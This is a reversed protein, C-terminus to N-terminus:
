QHIIILLADETADFTLQDFRLLDGDGVSDENAFGRGQCVYIMAPKDVDLSQGDNLRAIDVCTGAPFVANEEAQGGYVRTVSGPGPKFLRYAAAGGKQGPQLWLQIMRNESDEPNIENHSFGQAGAQQVQVDYAVLSNGPELSGEHVLGGELMVSIVDIDRHSHLGTAGHPVFRADALYVFNGLGQWAGDGEQQNAIREDVVLRHERVGAFGVRTLKDRQLIDM